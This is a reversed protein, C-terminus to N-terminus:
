DVNEEFFEKIMRKVKETLQPRISFVCMEYLHNPQNGRKKIIIRRNLLHQSANHIQSVTLGSSESIEKTTAVGNNQYVARVFRAQILGRKLEM